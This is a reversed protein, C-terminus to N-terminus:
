KTQGTAVGPEVFPFVDLEKRVDDLPRELMEEYYANLLFRARSGSEFLRRRDAPALRLPGVLGSLLTMPLGTQALEFWKVAIEE